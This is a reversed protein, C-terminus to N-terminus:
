YEGTIGLIKSEGKWTRAQPDNEGDVKKVEEASDIADKRQKVPDKASLALKFATKLGLKTRKFGNKFGKRFSLTLANYMYIAYFLKQPSISYDFLTRYDIGNKLEAILDPVLEEMKEAFISSDEANIQAPSKSLMDSDLISVEKSVIPLSFVHGSKSISSAASALLGETFEAMGESIEFDKVMKNLLTMNKDAFQTNYMRLTKERVGYNDVAPDQQAIDSIKEYVENFVASNEVSALMAYNLRVGVKIDNIRGDEVHKELSENWLGLNSFTNLGPANDTFVSTQSKSSDNKWNEPNLFILSFNTENWVGSANSVKESGKTKKSKPVIIRDDGPRGPTELRIYKEFFFVGREFKDRNKPSAYAAHYGIDIPAGDSGVNENYTTLNLPTNEQIATTHKWFWPVDFVQPKEIGNEMYTVVPVDRLSKNEVIKIPQGTEPDVFWGEPDNSDPNGEDDLQNPPDPNTIFGDVSKIAGPLDERIFFRLVEKADKPKFPEGSVPDNLDDKLIREEAILVLIEQMKKWVKKQKEQSFYNIMKKYVLDLLLDFTQLEKMDFKTISFLNSIAMEKAFIQIYGNVVARFIALQFSSYTEKDNPDDQEFMNYNEKVVKKLLNIDVIGPKNDPHNPQGGPAVDILDLILKPKQLASIKLAVPDLKDMVEKLQKKSMNNVFEGNDFFKKLAKNYQEQGWPNNEGAYVDEPSPIEAISKVLTTPDDYKQPEKEHMKWGLDFMVYEHLETPKTYDDHFRQSSQWLGREEFQGFVKKKLEAGDVCQEYAQAHWKPSHGHGGYWLKSRSVDFAIQSLVSRVVRKYLPGRFLDNLKGKVDEDTNEFVKLAQHAFVDAKPTTDGVIVLGESILKNKIDEPVPDDAALVLENKYYQKNSDDTQPTWLSSGYGIHLTLITKDVLENSAPIKVEVKTTGGPGLAELMKGTQKSLRVVDNETFTPNWYTIAVKEKSVFVPTEFIINSPTDPMLDKTNIDYDELSKKLPAAIKPYQENGKTLVDLYQECYGGSYAEELDALANRVRLPLDRELNSLLANNQNVLEANFAKGVTDKEMMNVVPKFIMEIQNDQMANFDGMGAAPDMAASELLGTVAPSGPVAPSSFLPPILKSMEEPDRLANSIEEFVNRDLNMERKFFKEIDEISACKDEYLDRLRISGNQGCINPDKARALVQDEIRGLEAPEVAHAMCVFLDEIQKSTKLKEGLLDSFDDKVFERTVEVVERTPTGAMAGVVEAGSLRKSLGRVFARPMNRDSVSPPKDGELMLPLGCENFIDVVPDESDPNSNDILDSIDVAGFDNSMEKAVDDNDEIPCSFDPCQTLWNLLSILLQMLLQVLLAEVVTKMLMTVAAMMDYTPGRFDFSPWNICFDCVDAITITKMEMSAGVKANYHMEAEAQYEAEASVAVPVPFNEPAEWAAEAKGGAKKLTQYSDSFYINFDDPNKAPDYLGANMSAELEYQASQLNELEKELENITEESANESKATVIEIKKEDVQKEVDSPTPVYFLPMEVWQGTEEDYSIDFGLETGDATTKTEGYDWAKMTKEVSSMSEDVPLPKDWSSPAPKPDLLKVKANAFSGQSLAKTWLFGETELDISLYDENVIKANWMTNIKPGIDNMKADLFGNVGMILIPVVPGPNLDAFGHGPVKINTEVGWDIHQIKAVAPKAAMQNGVSQLGTAKTTNAAKEEETIFGTEVNQAQNGLGGKAGAKGSAGMSGGGSLDMEFDVWPVTALELDGFCNCVWKLLSQLNIRDLMIDYMKYLTNKNPLELKMDELYGKTVAYDGIEAPPGQDREEKAKELNAPDKFFADEIQKYLNNKYPPPGVGVPDLPCPPGFKFWRFKLAGFDYNFEGVFGAEFEGGVGLFQFPDFKFEGFGCWEGFEVGMFKKGGKKRLGQLEEAGRAQIPYRTETFDDWSPNYGEDLQQMTSETQNVYSNTTPDSAAEGQAFEEQGVQLNAGDTDAGENELKAAAAAAKEEDQKKIKAELAEIQKQNEEATLLKTGDSAYGEKPEKIDDPHEEEDDEDDDAKEPPPPPDDKTEKDLDSFSDEPSKKSASPGKVSGQLDNMEKECEEQTM